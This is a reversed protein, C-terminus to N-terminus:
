RRSLSAFGVGFVSVSALELMRTEKGGFRHCGDPALVGEARWLTLSSSRDREATDLLKEFSYRPVVGDENCLGAACSEIAWM